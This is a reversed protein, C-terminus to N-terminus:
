REGAASATRHWAKRAQGTCDLAVHKVQTYEHLSYTSGTAPGLVIFEEGSGGRPM